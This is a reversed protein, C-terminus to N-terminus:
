GILKVVKEVIYEQESYTLSLSSPLSIGRESIDVSTKLVDSQGLSKYPEMRHLPYFVPRTEIGYGLLENILSDRDCSSPVLISFLWSSSVVLPDEAQWKIKRSIRGFLEKYTDSILQKQKAISDLREIQSVGLAAQMNTMRYNYGVINHWYKKEKSM